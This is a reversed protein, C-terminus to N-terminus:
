ASFNATGSNCLNCVMYKLRSFRIYLLPLSHLKKKVAAMELAEEYVKSAAM